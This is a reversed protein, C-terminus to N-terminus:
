CINRCCLYYYITLRTVKFPSYEYAQYANTFPATTPAFPLHVVTGYRGAQIVRVSDDGNDILADFTAILNQQALADGLVELFAIAKM